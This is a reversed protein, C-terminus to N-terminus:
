RTFETISLKLSNPASETSCVGSKTVHKLLACSIIPLKYYNDNSTSFTTVFAKANNINNNLTSHESDIIKTDSTNIFCFHYISLSQSFKIWNIHWRPIPTAINYFRAFDIASPNRNAITPSFDQILRNIESGYGNVHACNWDTHHISYDGM